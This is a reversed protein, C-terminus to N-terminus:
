ADTLLNIGYERFLEALAILPLGILANPDRGHLAAFLLIGLGESKFSGACDLPKEREIYSRIEADQLPRFQVSFAEVLSKHGAGHRLCLGTHFTVRRDSCARLQAIAREYTIPKGLIKGDLEAVQDSGIVFADDPADVAFAKAVALREVLAAAAEGPRPTEDIDPRATTFHLQLNDLIARRYPSTSALILNM